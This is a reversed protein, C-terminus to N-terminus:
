PIVSEVKARRLQRATSLVRPTLGLADLTGDPRVTGRFRVARAPMLDEKGREKETDCSGVKSWAGELGGWSEM